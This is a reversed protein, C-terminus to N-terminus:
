RALGPSFISPRLINPKTYGVVDDISGGEWDDLQAQSTAGSDVFIHFGAPDTTYISGDYLNYGVQLNDLFVRLRNGAVELKLLANAAITPVTFTALSIDTNDVFKKVRVTTSNVSSFATYLYKNSGGTSRARCIAGAGFTAGGVTTLRVQSSQNLPFSVANYVYYADGDGSVTDEIHNSVITAAGTDSIKTWNAGLSARNFDDTALVAM